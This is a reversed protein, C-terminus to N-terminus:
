PKPNPTCQAGHVSQDPCSTSPLASSGGYECCVANARAAGAPLCKADNPRKAADQHVSESRSGGPLSPLDEEVQWTQYAIQM